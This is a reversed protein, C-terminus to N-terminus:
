GEAESRNGQQSREHAPKMLIILLWVSTALEPLFYSQDVMGHIGATILAGVAALTVRDHTRLGTRTHRAILVGVLGVVFLGIIGLSLWSDLVLNHPHSTFREPWAEPTVYRPLYQYLFQDLGAGTLPHDAIMELSSRWLELRLSGSGGGLLSLAREPAIAVVIALVGAASAVAGIAVSRARALLLMLVLSAAIGLMAGRSFTLVTVLTVLAAPFLWASAFRNRFLLGTLLALVAARDLVLALANPHPAIGSLRTVSEAQIGGGLLSDFVAVVSAVVAGAVFMGAAILRFPESQHIVASAVFFFAVPTIITWRFTRLSEAAHAPDAMWFMAIVGALVLLLASGAALRDPIVRRMLEHRKESGLTRFRPLSSLVRPFYGLIAVFVLIELTNFQLEGLEVPRFSLPISAPVAFILARPHVVAFVLLSGIALWAATGISFLVPFVVLLVAISALVVERICVARNIQELVAPM